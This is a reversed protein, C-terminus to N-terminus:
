PFTTGSRKALEPLFRGYIISAVAVYIVVTVIGYILTLIAVQLGIGWGGGGEWLPRLILVALGIIYSIAGWSFLSIPVQLTWLCKRNPENRDMQRLMDLIRGARDANVDFASFMISLHFAIIVCWISLFLSGYWLVLVMWHTNATQSWQISSTVVSAILTTAVSVYNLQTKENEEWALVAKDRHEPSTINLLQQVVYSRNHTPM